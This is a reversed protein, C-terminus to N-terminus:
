SGPGATPLGQPLRGGEAKTFTETGLPSEWTVKLTSGSVLDITGSTRDTRGDACKLSITSAGTDKRATGSCMTGGMAFLAARDGTFMLAVAKGGVTTFWSGELEDTPVGTAEAGGADSGSGPTTPAAPAAPASPTTSPASGSRSDGDGGCGTLVLAGALALAAYAIRMRRGSATCAGAIGQDM